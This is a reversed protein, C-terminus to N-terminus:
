VYKQFRELGIEEFPKETRKIKCIRIHTSTQQWTFMALTVFPSWPEFQYIVGNLFDLM